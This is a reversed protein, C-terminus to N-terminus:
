RPPRGEVAPLPDRILARMAQFDPSAATRVWELLVAEVTTPVAGARELRVLAAECDRPFRSTVADVVLHVAFGEELLEHVTQNVCAHAEIGAVVVQRRGSDRLRAAFAPAGLCSLTSKEIPACGAPLADQLIPATHGLGRPYQESVLIPVGVRKAGEILRRVAEVMRPGEFLHPLYREQVDIVVLASRARDLLSM